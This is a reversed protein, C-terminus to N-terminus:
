FNRLLRQYVKLELNRVSLESGLVSARGHNLIQGKEIVIFKTKYKVRNYKSNFLSHSWKCENYILLCKKSFLNNQKIRKLVKNFNKAKGTTSAFSRFFSEVEKSNVVTDGTDWIKERYISTSYNKSILISDVISIINPISLSIHRNRNEYRAILREERSSLMYSLDNKYAIPLIVITDKAANVTNIVEDVPSIAWRIPMSFHNFLIGNVLFYLILYKKM